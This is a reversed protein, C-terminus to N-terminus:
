ENSSRRKFEVHASAVKGEEGHNARWEICLADIRLTASKPNFGFGSKKKDTNWRREDANM